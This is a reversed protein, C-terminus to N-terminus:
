ALGGFLRNIFSRFRSVEVATEVGGVPIMASIAAGKVNRYVGRCNRRMPRGALVARAFKKIALAMKLNSKQRRNLEVPVGDRSIVKIGKM